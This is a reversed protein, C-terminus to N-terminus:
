KSLANDTQTILQWTVDDAGGGLTKHPELNLRNIADQDVLLYAPQNQQWHKQLKQDSGPVVVRDGYFELSPRFNPYSTFIAAKPPTHIRISEAVPKVPFAENLEWLWDNSNFLLLLALYFGAILVPMFYRSSLWLLVVAATFSIAVVSLIIALDLDTGLSLYRWSYFGVGLWCLPIILSLGVRWSFLYSNKQWALTLSAGVMLSLAPYIPIIYWPLKTKMLSVALLYVGGWTLTLKAWSLRHNRVALGIGRPLFILWPLSYKAIELLYYWPPGPADNVTEWIRNFTQQGLNSGLFQSGYHLYQLEYWAIAPVIGLIFGSWLYPSLLLGPSDWVIFFIAIAGLLIGMMIGKTLCVLGLSLGLGLLWRSSKRGRLLCWVGLCYWCAIVGDLMAVRGHRAMPLLTLYVLASLVAALRTAFVERGIKYLLPVSCACLLAPILRSSWESIGFLHYSLAILGHVLPPKNWYPEGYHITPYLWTYEGPAARWINRAVGAVIGEDWDRLPLNGLNFTYLAIAAILLGLFYLNDKNDKNDKNSLKSHYREKDM